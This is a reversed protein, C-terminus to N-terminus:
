FPKMSISMHFTTNYCHEGIHLWTAWIRQHGGVYNKLYGEVWKKVIETQGYKQPHYNNNPTLTSLPTTAIDGGIHVFGEQIKTQGNIFQNERDSTINRSL